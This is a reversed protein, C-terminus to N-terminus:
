AGYTWVRAIADLAGYHTVHHGRRVKFTALVPWAERAHSGILTHGNDLYRGPFMERAVRHMATEGRPGGRVEYRGPRIPTIEIASM